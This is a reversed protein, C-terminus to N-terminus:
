KKGEPNSPLANMEKLATIAGDLKAVQIELNAITRQHQAIMQLGKQKEAECFEIKKKTQERLYLDDNERNQQMQKLTKKAAEKKSKLMKESNKGKLELKKSM